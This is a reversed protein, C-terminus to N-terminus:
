AKAKEEKRREAWRKRMSAGIRAKREAPMPGKKKGKKGRRKKGSSTGEFADELTQLRDLKRTLEKLLEANNM